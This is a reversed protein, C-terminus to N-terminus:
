FSISGYHNPGKTGPLFGTEIFAWLPGIFPVLGIFVWFGSKDRDHWRKVSLALSPWLIFVRWVFWPVGSYSSYTPISAEIFGVFVSLVLIPLVGKLWYTALGIRGDFSFYTELLTMSTIDKVVEPVPQSIEYIPENQPPLEVHREQLLERIVDFTMEAWEGRNNTRWIEVLEDTGKQSFNRHIQKRLEDNM